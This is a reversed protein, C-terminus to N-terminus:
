APRLKNDHTHMPDPAKRALGAEPGACCKRGAPRSSGHPRVIPVQQLGPKAVPRTKGVLAASPGLGVRRRSRGNTGGCLRPWLWVWLLPRTRLLAGADPRCRLRGIGCHFGCRDSFAHSVFRFGGIGQRSNLLSIELGFQPRWHMNLTRVLFYIWRWLNVAVRCDLTCTLVCLELDQVFCLHRAEGGTRIGTLCM